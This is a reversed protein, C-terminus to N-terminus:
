SFAEPPINLLGELYSFYLTASLLDASGGPSLHRQILIDDYNHISSVFLDHDNRNHYIALSEDKVQQWANLGGRHIINGDEVFSMLYLLVELPILDVRSTHQKRQRIFPLAKTIISPLGNGSEGRPGTIGHELFLKEGYTLAKKQELNAFDNEILHHSFESVIHAIHEIDKQSLQKKLTAASTQALFKGTAGLILAFLFNAGKHTNIHNTAHFMSQEADLGCQRLRNFLDKPPIHAYLFGTEVYQIFHPYLAQISKEFTEFTMDHHAGNNLRDVLGPKPSLAVEEYLATKALTAYFKSANSLM